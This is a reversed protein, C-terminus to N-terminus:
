ATVEVKTNGDEHKTLKYVGGFRGLEFVRHEALFVRQNEGLAELMGLLHEIGEQSLSACPEDFLLLDFEVGARSKILDSIGINTCVRLRQKEGGSLASLKIEQGNKLLKLTIENKLSENKLERQTSVSISWELLGMAGLAQNFHVELEEVVENLISLRLEPFKKKWFEYQAEQKSFDKTDKKVGILANEYKAVMGKTKDLLTFFPCDEAEKTVYKKKLSEINRRKSEEVAIKSKISALETKVDTISDQAEKVAKELEQIEEEVKPREPLLNDLHLRLDDAQDFMPGSIEEVHDPSILQKCQPCETDGQSLLTEIDQTKTNLKHETLHIESTIKSLYARKEKLEQNIDSIISDTEKVLAVLEGADPIDELKKEAEEIEERLEALEQLHGEQWNAIQLDIQDIQRQADDLSTTLNNIREQAISAEKQVDRIKDKCIDGCRVWKDLQFLSSLFSLKGSPTLDIFSKSEDQAFYISYLFQEFTLGIFDELEENKSDKGDILLGNPKWSRTIQTEKGDKEVVLTVTYGGKSTWNLLDGAKEGSETKEYLCWCIAGLMTSKGLGNTGLAPTELNTGTILFLGNGSPFDITEDKFCKFNKLHIQKIRM